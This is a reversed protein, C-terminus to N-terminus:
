RVLRLGSFVVPEDLSHASCFHQIRINRTNVSWGCAEVYEVDVDAPVPIYEGCDQRDCHIEYQVSVSM